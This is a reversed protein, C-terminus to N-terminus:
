ALGTKRILLKLNYSGCINRSYGSRILQMEMWELPSLHNSYNKRFLNPWLVFSLWIALCWKNTFLVLETRYAKFSGNGDMLRVWSPAASCSIGSNGSSLDAFDSSDTVYDDDGAESDREQCILLSPLALARKHDNASIHAHTHRELGNDLSSSSLARSKWERRGGSGSRLVTALM